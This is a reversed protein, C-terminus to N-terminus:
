TRQGSVLCDPILQHAGGKGKKGEQSWQRQGRAAVRCRGIDVLGPYPQAGILFRWRGAIEDRMAAIRAPLYAAHQGIIRELDLHMFADVLVAHHRHLSDVTDINRGLTFDGEGGAALM